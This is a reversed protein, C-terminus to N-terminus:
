GTLIFSVLSIAFYLGGTISGTIAFVINVKHCRVLYRVVVLSMLCLLIHTGTYVMFQTRITEDFISSGPFLYDGSLKLGIYSLPPYIAVFYYLSKEWALIRENRIAKGFASNRYVFGSLMWLAIAGVIFFFIPMLYM